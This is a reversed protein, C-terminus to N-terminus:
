CEVYRVKHINKGMVNIGYPCVLLRYKRFIQLEQQYEQAQWFACMLALNFLFLRLTDGQKLSIETRFTDFAQKVIHANPKM